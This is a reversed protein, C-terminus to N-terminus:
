RGLMIRLPELTIAPIYTILMLAVLNIILFPVVGRYLVPLPVKFLAHAALLNLGLPPLFMGIALNVTVILGFHILDVGAATVVPVLLPMLILIAGPPELVSGVVLLVVNIVLLLMWQELQLSNILALLKQPLGSTTIVYSYTGAAAVVVMIQAVLKASSLITDVIQELNMERHIFVSVIISYICAVGAAETPTFVGGYVGGLIVVPAALAWTARRLKYLVESSSAAPEPPIRKVYSRGVVYIALMGAVLLGPVIGALFLHPVSAQATIGYLIMPISPPIIADIVGTVSVLSVGFKRGYPGKEFTPLTLKGIAAVCAVSSGSMAGFVSASGITALPLSGRIGGFMSLTLEMLRQAIGGRAMIEGALIFLPVALLPFSELAGFLASHLSSLSGLGLVLMGIVAATFLSAYIPVGLVLLVTPLVFLVLFEM